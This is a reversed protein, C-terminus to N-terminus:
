LNVPADELVGTEYALPQPVGLQVEAQYAATVDAGDLLSDLPGNNVLSALKSNLAGLGPPEIGSAGDTVIFELASWKM